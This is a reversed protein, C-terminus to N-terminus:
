KDRMCENIYDVIANKQEPEFWKAEQNKKFWTLQRKAYRRSNQKIMAVANEFTSNGQFYEFLEKYGVTNLANNNKHPLLNQVENLLGKEMMVDVRHNIREYLKERDSNLAIFIVKFDRQAKKQTRLQSYPIGSLMSVEIARLIRNTNNIEANAYYEPDLSKLKEHLWSLGFERYKAELDARIAPDSAPLDDMGYLVANIYLGSGGVMIAVSKKKFQEDLTVLVEREFQGVNYPTEISLQGVFHHPIGQMEDITPKATGISMEKFFQRSDASIIECDFTKALSVSLDSKGIATPGAVVILYKDSNAM